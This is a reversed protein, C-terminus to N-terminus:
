KKEKIIIEMVKKTEDDTLNHIDKNKEFWNKMVTIFPKKTMKSMRKFGFIQADIEEPQTYYKFSDTEEPQDLDYLSNLKQYVHRLEHGVLENLEGVIDYILKQKNTPNYKIKISITDEDRWYDANLIFDDIKRDQEIELEFGIPIPLDTFEYFMNDDDLEEPLYFTGDENEKFVKVVDRVITRIINRLESKNRELIIDNKIEEIEVVLDGDGKIVRHYMGKPIFITEGEKLQKPIENDMQFKWGNSKIIKVNRDLEDFHWKLEDSNLSEKFLRTKKGNEKIEDFPLVDNTNVKKEPLPPDLLFKENLWHRLENEVFFEPVEEDDSKESAIEAIYRAFKVKLKDDLMTMLGDSIFFIKSLPDDIGLEGEVLNFIKMITKGWWTKYGTTEEIGPRFVKNFARLLSGTFGVISLQPFFWPLLRLTAKYGGEGIHQYLRKAKANTVIEKLQGFTIKGQAKCFKKADCINKIARESPEIEENLRNDTTYDLKFLPTKNFNIRINFKDPDYEIYQGDQLQLINEGKLLILDEIFNTRINNPETDIFFSVTAQSNLLEEKPIYKNVSSKPTIAIGYLKLNIKKKYKEYFLPECAKKLFANFLMIYKKNIFREYPTM